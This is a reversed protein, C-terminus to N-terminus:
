KPLIYGPEVTTKRRLSELVEKRVMLIGSGSSGIARFVDEEGYFVNATGDTSWGFRDAALKYELNGAFALSRDPTQPNFMIEIRSPYVESAVGPTLAPISVAEIVQSGSRKLVGGAITKSDRADATRQLAIDKSVYFQLRKVDKDALGFEKRLASNYPVLDMHGMSATPTNACGAAIAGGLVVAILNKLMM